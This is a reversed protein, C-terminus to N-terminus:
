WPKIVAGLFSLVLIVPWTVAKFLAVFLGCVPMPSLGGDRQERPKQLEPGLALLATIAAGAAWVLVVQEPGTLSTWQDVLVSLDM